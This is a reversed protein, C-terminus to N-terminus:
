NTPTALFGYYINYSGPPLYYGVIEDSDNVASALTRGLGKPASLFTFTGNKYLYGFGERPTECYGVVDGLNNIGLAGSNNCGPVVLQQFSGNSYIFSYQTGFSDEYIGAIQGQDNVGRAETISAGPFDLTTFTGGSYLFGQWSSDSSNNDYYEGVVSGSDSIGQPITGTVGPVNLATLRGNVLLFGQPAASGLNGEYSGVMEGSSNMGTVATDYFPEFSTIVGSRVVFGGGSGSWFEGVIVSKNSIGLPETMTAGPYAITVYKFTLTGTGAIGRSVKIAGSHTRASSEQALPVQASVACLVTLALVAKCRLM